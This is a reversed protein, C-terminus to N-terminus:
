RIQWLVLDVKKLPTLDSNGFHCDFCEIIMLGTPSSLLQSYGNSLSEYVSVVRQFRDKANWYPLSLGFQNLVFRDILPWM